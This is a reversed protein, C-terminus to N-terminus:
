SSADLKCGKVPPMDSKEAMTYKTRNDRFYESLYTSTADQNQKNATCNTM